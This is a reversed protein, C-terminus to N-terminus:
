RRDLVPRMDSSAQEADFADQITRRTQRRIMIAAIGAFLLALGAALGFYSAIYSRLADLWAHQGFADQLQGSANDFLLLWLSLATLLVGPVLAALPAWAILLAPLVMILIVLIQFIKNATPTLSDNPLAFILLSLGGFSLVLGVLGAVLNTGIRPAPKPLM